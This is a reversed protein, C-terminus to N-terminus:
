INYLTKLKNLVIKQEATLNLDRTFRKVIYEARKEPSYCKGKIIKKIGGAALILLIVIGATILIVNKNKM